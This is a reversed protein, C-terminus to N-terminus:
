QACRRSQSTPPLTTNWGGVTSCRLFACEASSSETCSCCIYRSAPRRVADSAAHRHWRSNRKSQRTSRVRWRTCSPNRCCRSMSTTAAHTDSRAPTPYAGGTIAVGRRHAALAGATSNRGLSCNVDNACRARSVRVSASPAYRRMNPARRACTQGPPVGWRGCRGTLSMRRTTVTPGSAAAM